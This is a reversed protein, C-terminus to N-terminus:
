ERAAASAQRRRKGLYAFLALGCGTLVYTEPEPVESPTPAAPLQSWNYQLLGISLRLSENPNTNLQGSDFRIGGRLRWSQAALNTGNPFPGTAIWHSDSGASDSPFNSFSSAPTNRNVLLDALGSVSNYIGGGEFGFVLDTLKAQRAQAANGTARVAIRITDYARALSTFGGLSNTGWNLSAVTNSGLRVTFSLGATSDNKLDFTYDRGTIQAATGLFAPLFQGATGVSPGLGVDWNLSDVKFRAEGVQGGFTNIVTQPDNIYVPVAQVERGSLLLFLAFL